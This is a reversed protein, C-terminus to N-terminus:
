FPKLVMDAILAAFLAVNLGVAVLIGARVAAMASGVEEVPRQGAEAEIAQMGLRPLRQVWPSGNVAFLAVIMLYAAILWGAFLDFGGTLAALVGFVIGAVLFSVGIVPRGGVLRRVAALGAVDGRWIAVAYLIAEGILFTVAAFMSLIHLAKFILM